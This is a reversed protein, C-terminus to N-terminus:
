GCGSLTPRSSGNCRDRTSGGLIVRRQSESAGRLARGHRTTTGPTISVTLANGAITIACDLAGGALSSLADLAGGVDIDGDGDLPAGADDAGGVLLLAGADVSLSASADPAGMMLAVAPGGASDCVALSAGLELAGGIVGVRTGRAGGVTSATSSRNAPDCLTIVRRSM